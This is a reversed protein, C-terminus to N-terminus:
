FTTLMSCPLVSLMGLNELGLVCTSKSSSHLSLTTCASPVSLTFLEYAREDKSQNEILQKRHKSVELSGRKYRKKDKKAQECNSTNDSSLLVTVGTFNVSKSGIEHSAECSPISVCKSPVKQRLSNYFRVIKEENVTTVYQAAYFDLISSIYPVVTSCYPVKFDLKLLLVTTNMIPNEMLAVALQKPTSVKRGGQILYTNVHTQQHLFHTDCMDKGSQAENHYYAVLKLGAASCVYPLLLKTHKGGFNKANDSQVIVKKIHPVQKRLAHFAAELCSLVVSSDAKQEGQVICDIFYLAM